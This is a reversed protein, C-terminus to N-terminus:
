DRGTTGPPGATTEAPLPAQIHVDAMRPRGEALGSRGAWTLILGPFIGFFVIAVATVVVVARAPWASGFASRLRPATVPVRPRMFMVMVVYLYYGASVVSTLVLIVALLTGRALPSDLSAQVLYYKAFFGLGGFVPFGLLALMFVSMAVALWPRATWLGAFDDLTESREGSNGLAIMVGFAGMTALTSTLIYFLLAWSGAVTGAAIAVLIYGGHAISSYALLRKLNRQALAIVNGATMTVVALWWVPVYWWDDILYFSERWVRMLAVFAAAKVAAAMYATIPTPAGEYVDPAWMHFPAAAVKFAFGILLLAV